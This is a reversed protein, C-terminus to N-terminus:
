TKCLSTLLDDRKGPPLALQVWRLRVAVEPDLPKDSDLSAAVDVEVLNVVNAHQEIALGKKESTTESSSDM